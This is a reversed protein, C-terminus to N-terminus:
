EATTTEWLLARIRIIKLPDVGLFTFDQRWQPNKLHWPVRLLVFSIKQSYEVLLLWEMAICYGKWFHFTNGKFGIATFLQWRKGKGLSIRISGAAFHTIFVDFNIQTQIIFVDFNIDM